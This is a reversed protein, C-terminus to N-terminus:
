RGAPPSMRVHLPDPGFRHGSLRETLVTLQETFEGLDCRVDDSVEDTAFARDVFFASNPVTLAGFWALIDRLHREASLFHHPAAAVTLVGVPKSRLAEGPLTDLLLKLTGSLSGRFVPSALVVADAERVRDVADAEWIAVVPDTTTQPSLREAQWGPFRARVDEEILGLARALKGPPTPSGYVTLLKM